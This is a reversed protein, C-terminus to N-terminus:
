LMSTAYVFVKQFLEASSDFLHMRETKGKEARLKNYVKRALYRRYAM